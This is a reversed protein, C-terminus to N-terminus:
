RSPWDHLMKLDRARDKETEMETEREEAERKRKDPGQYLWGEGCFYLQRMSDREGRHGAM